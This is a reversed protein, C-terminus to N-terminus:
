GHGSHISVWASKARASQLSWFVTRACHCSNRPSSTADLLCHEDTCTHYQELWQQERCPQKAAEPQNWSLSMQAGTSDLQHAQERNAGQHHLRTQM